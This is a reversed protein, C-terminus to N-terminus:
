SNAVIVDVKQDGDIDGVAIGRPSVGTAYDIRTGFKGYGTSTWVSMTAALNNTAVLDARGNNDVDLWKVDIPGGSSESPVILASGFGSLQAASAGPLLLFASCVLAIVARRSVIPHLSM